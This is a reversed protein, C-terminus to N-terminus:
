WDPKPNTQSSTFVIPSSSGDAILAGSVEIRAWEQFSVTTGPSVTLTVGAPVSVACDLTVTVSGSWTTNTELTGCAEGSAALTRAPAPLAALLGLLLASLLVQGVRAAFM